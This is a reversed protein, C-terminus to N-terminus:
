ATAAAALERAVQRILHHAAQAPCKRFKGDKARKHVAFVKMPDHSTWMMVRYDCGGFTYYRDSETANILTFMKGAGKEDPPETGGQCSDDHAMARERAVVIM